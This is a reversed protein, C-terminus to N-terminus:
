KAAPEEAKKEEVAAEPKKEEVKPEVAPEAKPEAKKPVVTGPLAELAPEIKMGSQPTLSREWVQYGQREIRITIPRVPLPVKIMEKSSTTGRFVGDATIDANPPISGFLVDVIVAVDRGKALTPDEKEPLKDGMGLYQIFGALCKKSGDWAAKSAPTASPGMMKANPALQACGTAEKHWILKGNADFARMYVKARVQADADLASDKSLEKVETVVTLHAGRAAAVPKGDVWDASSSIPLTEGVYSVAHEVLLDVRAALDRAFGLSAGPNVDAIKAAEVPAFLVIRDLAGVTPPKGAQWTRTEGCGTLALVIASALLITPKM